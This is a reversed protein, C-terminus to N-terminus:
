LHFFQCQVIGHSQYITKQKHQFLSIVPIVSNNSHLSPLGPKATVYPYDALFIERCGQNLSDLIATRYWIRIKYRVRVTYIGYAYPIYVM